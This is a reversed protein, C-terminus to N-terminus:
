PHPPEGCDGCQPVRIEVSHTVFGTGSGQPPCSIRSAKMWNGAAPHCRNYYEQFLNSRETTTTVAVTQGGSETTQAIASTALIAMMLVAYITKTVM